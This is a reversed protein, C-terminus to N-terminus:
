PFERRGPSCPLPQHRNQGRSDRFQREGVPNQSFERIRPDVFEGRVIGPHSPSHRPEVVRRDNHQACSVAIFLSLKLTLGRLRPQNVPVTHAHAIPFIHWATEGRAVEPKSVDWGTHPGHMHSEISSGWCGRGGWGCAPLARGCVEGPLLQFSTPFENGLEAQSRGGRVSQTRRSGGEAVATGPGAVIARGLMDWPCSTQCQEEWRRLIHCGRCDWRQPQVRVAGPPRRTPALRGRRCAFEGGVFVLRGELGRKAGTSGVPARGGRM